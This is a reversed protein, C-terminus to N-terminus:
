SVIGRKASKRLVKWITFDRSLKQTINNGRQCNKQQEEVTIETPKCERQDLFSISEDLDVNKMLGHSGSEATEGTMRIDDVPVSM